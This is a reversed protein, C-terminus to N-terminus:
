SVDALGALTRRFKEERATWKERESGIQERLTDLGLNGPGGRHDRRALADKIEEATPTKNSDTEGLEEKVQRYAERFPLGEQVLELARDTAFVEGSFASLLKEENLSLNEILPSTVALSDIVLQLGDFLPAKTEQLDRSYGSRLGSLLSYLA